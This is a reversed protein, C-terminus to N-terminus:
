VGGEWGREWALPSLPSICFVFKKLGGRQPNMPRCKKHKLTMNGERNSKYPRLM